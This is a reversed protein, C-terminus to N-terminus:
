PIITRTAERGIDDRESEDRDQRPCGTARRSLETAERSILSNRLPLLCDPVHSALSPRGRAAMSPAKATGPQRRGRLLERFRLFCGVFRFRSIQVFLLWTESM